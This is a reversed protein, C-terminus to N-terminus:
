NGRTFEVETQGIKGVIKNGQHNGRMRWTCEEDRGFKEASWLSIESGNVTGALVFEGVCTRRSSKAYREGKGQIQGGDVSTIEVVVSM